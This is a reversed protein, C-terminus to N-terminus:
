VVLSDAGKIKLTGKGGTKQGKKALSLKDRKSFLVNYAVDHSLLHLM